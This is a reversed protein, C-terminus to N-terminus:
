SVDKRDFRRLALLAGGGWLLLNLGAAITEQWPLVRHAGAGHVLRQLLALDDGAPLLRHSVGGVLGVGRLRLGAGDRRLVPGGAGARGSLPEAGANRVGVGAPLVGGDAGGGPGPRRGPVPGRHLGGLHPLPAGGAYRLFLQVPQVRQCGLYRRLRVAPFLAGPHLGGAPRVAGGVGPPGGAGQGAAAEAGDPLLLGPGGHPADGRLGTLYLTGLMALIASECLVARFLSGFLFQHSGYTAPGAYLDMAADTEALHAVRGALLGYKWTMWKVALPSREVVGAYFDALEGTDYTEFIDEMGTVSQLLLDRNETAPM